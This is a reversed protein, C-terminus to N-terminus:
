GSKSQCQLSIATDGLLRYLPARFMKKAPLTIGSPLMESNSRSDWVNVRSHAQGPEASILTSFLEQCAPEITMYHTILLPSCVECQYEGFVLLTRALNSFFLEQCVIGLKM